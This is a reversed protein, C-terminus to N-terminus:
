HPPVTSATNCATASPGHLRHLELGHAPLSCRSRPKNRKFRLLLRTERTDVWATRGRFSHRLTHTLTILAQPGFLRKQLIIFAWMHTNSLISNAASFRDNLLRQIRAQFNLGSVKLPYKWVCPKLLFFQRWSPFCFRPDSTDIIVEKIM